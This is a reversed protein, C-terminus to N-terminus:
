IGAACLSFTDMKVILKTQLFHIHSPKVQEWLLQAQKFARERILVCERSAPPNASGHHLSITNLVLAM